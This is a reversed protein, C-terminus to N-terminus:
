KLKRLRLVSIFLFLLLLNLKIFRPSNSARLLCFYPVHNAIHNSWKSISTMQSTNPSNKFNFDWTETNQLKQHIETIESTENKPIPRLVFVQFDRFVNLKKTKEEWAIDFRNKHIYKKIKLLLYHTIETIETIESTEVQGQLVDIISSKQM